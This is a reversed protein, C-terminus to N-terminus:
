PQGDGSADANADTRDSPPAGAIIVNVGANELAARNEASLGADSILGRWQSANGFRLLAPKGIKSSDAVVYVSTARAAMKALMRGVTLSGNYVDGDLTMGDAGIFALDAHFADLNAETLPGVLDPTDNRVIGGLLITEVGGARQLTAAIPLSTTIVTLRTRGVLHRALALTTTGSDLMVSQGSEILAAAREGIARKEKRNQDAHRLFQFEFMVQEAPAAGGHTRVVRGEDALQQLDRRVTMDSVQLQAALFEVSCDGHERLLQQIQRRRGTKM